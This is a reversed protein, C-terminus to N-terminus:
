QSHHVLVCVVPAVVVARPLVAEAVVLLWSTTLLRPMQPHLGYPRDKLSTFAQLQFHTNSLSSAQVATVETQLHGVPIAGVAGVELILQERKRMVQLGGDVMEVVVLAVPEKTLRQLDQIVVAVVVV